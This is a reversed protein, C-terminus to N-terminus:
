FKHTGNKIEVILEYEYKFIELIIKFNKMYKM